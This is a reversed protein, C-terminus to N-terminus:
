EFGMLMYYGDIIELPSESFAFYVYRPQPPRDKDTKHALYGYKSYEYVSKSPLLGDGNIKKVEVNKLKDIIVKSPKNLLTQSIDLVKKKHCTLRSPKYLQLLVVGTDGQAGGEYSAFMIIYFGGSDICIIYPDGEGDGEGFYQQKFKLGFHKEITEALTYLPIGIKQMQENVFSELPDTKSLTTYNAVFDEWFSDALLASQTVFVLLIAIFPKATM